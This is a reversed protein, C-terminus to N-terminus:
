QPEILNQLHGLPRWAEELHFYAKADPQVLPVLTIKQAQDRVSIAQFHWM